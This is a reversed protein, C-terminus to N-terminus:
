GVAVVFREELCVFCASTCFSSASYVPRKSFNLLSSVTKSSIRHNGMRPNSRNESRHRKPTNCGKRHTAPDPRCPTGNPQSVHLVLPSTSSNVARGPGHPRVQYWSLNQCSSTVTACDVAPAEATYKPTRSCPSSAEGRGHSDSADECM